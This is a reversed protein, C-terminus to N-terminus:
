AIQVRVVGAPGALENGLAHLCLVAGTMECLEELAALSVYIPDHWGYTAAYRQGIVELGLAGAVFVVGSRVLAYRVPPALAKLFPLLAAALALVIAAGVGWIWVHAIGRATLWPMLAAACREHLAVTEDASVLALLFALLRWGRRAAADARQALLGAGMACALLLASSYWTPLNAEADVDLLLLWWEHKTPAFGHAIHAAANAVHLAAVGTGAWRVLNAPRLTLETAM